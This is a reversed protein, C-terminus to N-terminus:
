EIIYTNELMTGGSFSVGLDEPEYVRVPTTDIRASLPTIQRSAVEVQTFETTRDDYYITITYTGPELNTFIYFGHEDTICVEFPPSDAGPRYAVLTAGIAANGAHSDRVVGSIAGSTQLSTELAAIRSLFHMVDIEVGDEIVDEEALEEEVLEPEEVFHEEEAHEVVPLRPAPPALTVVRPAPQPAAAVGTPESPRLTVAGILVVGLLLWRM